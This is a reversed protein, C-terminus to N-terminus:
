QRGVCTPDIVSMNSRNLLAWGSADFPSNHPGQEVRSRSVRSRCDPDWCRIYVLLDGTDKAKASKAVWIYSKNGKHVEVLGDLAAKVICPCRRVAFSYGKCGRTKAVEPVGREDHNGPEQRFNAQSFVESGMTVRHLANIFGDIVWRPVVEMPSEGELWHGGGSSGVSSAGPSNCRPSDLAFSRKRKGGMGIRLLDEVGPSSCASMSAHLARFITADWRQTPTYTISYPDPMSASHQAILMAMRLPYKDPYSDMEDNEPLVIDYDRDKDVPLTGCTSKFIVLARHKFVIGDGKSSGISQVPQHWNSTMAMDMAMFGAYDGM